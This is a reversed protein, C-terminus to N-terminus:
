YCTIEILHIQPPCFLRAPIVSTGVGRTVLLDMRNETLWGSLYRDPVDESIGLLDSFFTMQGGHTHGFLGLNFWNLSGATNRVLQAESIVTPNHALFIM